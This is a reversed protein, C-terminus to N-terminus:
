EGSDARNFSSMPQILRSEHCSHILDMVGTVPSTYHAVLRFIIPPDSQKEPSVINAVDSVCYCYMPQCLFPRTWRLSMVASLPRFFQTLSSKVCTALDHYFLKSIM